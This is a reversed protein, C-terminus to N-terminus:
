INPQSYVKPYYEQEYFNMTKTSNRQKMASYDVGGSNNNLFTVSQLTSYYRFNFLCKCMWLLKITCNVDM